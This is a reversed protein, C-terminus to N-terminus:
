APVSLDRYAADWNKFVPSLGKSQLMACFEAVSRNDSVEFQGQGEAAAAEDHYGGVTTRSEVSMKNIGVGALGDRFRASERTSLVLTLEPLCIRFAYILQALFRDSVAVPPMYGGLQPQIRPFSISFGARWYQKRLTQAHQFLALADRVPDALGLLVGLGVSRMGAALARAPTELRQQYDRKLGWRHSLKYAAPDYTEQYVTVGTCGAEALSKYEATTMPFVEVTVLDFREAALAVAQRVYDFDAQKLRAGTLLLVEALGKAKLADMEKIMKDPELRRRPRQRNAAFGCYVCGSPCYDSLYLPAYLAVTRGFQRRTMLQARAALSELAAGAPPSLLAALEAIGPDEVLLAQRVAREDAARARSLWPDSNM